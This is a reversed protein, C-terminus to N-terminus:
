KNLLKRFSNFPRRHVVIKGVKENFLGTKKLIKERLFTLTLGFNEM